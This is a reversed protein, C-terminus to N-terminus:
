SEYEDPVPIDIMQLRVQINPVNLRRGTNDIKCDLDQELQQIVAVTNVADPSLKAEGPICGTNDFVARGLESAFCYGARDYILNRTFWLEDCTEIAFAPQALLALFFGSILRMLCRER